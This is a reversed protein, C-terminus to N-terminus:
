YLTGKNQQRRKSTKVYEQKNERKGLTTNQKMTLQHIHSSMLFVTRGAADLYLFEKWYQLM